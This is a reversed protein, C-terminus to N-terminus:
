LGCTAFNSALTSHCRKRSVTYYCYSSVQFGRPMHSFDPHPDSGPDWAFDAQNNGTGLEWERVTGCNVSNWGCSKVLEALPLCYVCQFM